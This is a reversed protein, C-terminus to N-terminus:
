IYTKSTGGQCACLNQNGMRLRLDRCPAAQAPFTNNASSRCLASVSNIESSTHLSEDVRISGILLYSM